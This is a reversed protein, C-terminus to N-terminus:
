WQCANREVRWDAGRARVARARPADGRLRAESRGCHESDVSCCLSAPLGPLPCAPPAPLCPCLLLFHSSLRVLTCSRATHKSSARRTSRAHARAHLPRRAAVRARPPMVGYSLATADYFLRSVLDQKNVVLSFHARAGFERLAPELVSHALLRGALCAERQSPLPLLEDLACTGFADRLILGGVSLRRGRLDATRAFIDVPSDVILAARTAPKRALKALFPRAWAMVGLAGASQGVLVLEDLAGFEPQAVLWGLAARANRYGRQQSGAYPYAGSGYAHAADGMHADGSCYGLQVVTFGAYRNRPDAPDLVGGFPDVPRVPAAFTSCGSQVTTSMFSWCAGGGRFQVLLRRPDGTQVLFAYRGSRGVADACSGYGTLTPPHICATDGGPYVLYAGPATLMASYPCSTAGAASTLDCRRNADVFGLPVCELVESPEDAECTWERFIVGRPRPSLGPCCPVFAGNRDPRVGKLTCAFREPNIPKERPHALPVGDASAGDGLTVAIARMLLGFTCLPDDACARQSSRSATMAAEADLHHWANRGASLDPVGGTRLLAALALVTTAAVAGVFCAQVDM